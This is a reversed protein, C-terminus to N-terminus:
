VATEVQELCRLEEAHVNKTQKNITKNVCMTMLHQEQHRFSGIWLQCLLLECHHVGCFYSVCFICLDVSKRGIGKVSHFGCCLQIKKDSWPATFFFFFTNSGCPTNMNRHKLKNAIAAAAGSSSQKWAEHISDCGVVASVEKDM